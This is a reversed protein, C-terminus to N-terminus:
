AAGQDAALLEYRPNYMVLRTDGPEGRAIMGAAVLRRGPVIGPVDRRGTWCLDITGTGDFLQARLATTSGVPAYSVARLVGVVRSRRRSTVADIDEADYNVM